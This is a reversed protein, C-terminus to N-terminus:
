LMIWTNSCTRLLRVHEAHVFVHFTQWAEAHTHDDARPTTVVLPLHEQTRVGLDCEFVGFINHM